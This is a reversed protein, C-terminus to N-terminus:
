LCLCSLVFKLASFVEFTVKPFGPISIFKQLNTCFYQMLANWRLEMENEENQTLIFWNNSKFMENLHLYLVKYTCNVGM